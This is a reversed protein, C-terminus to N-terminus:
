QWRNSNGSTRPYSHGEHPHYHQDNGHHGRPVYQPLSYTPYPQYHAFPTTSHSGNPVQPPNHIYATTNLNNSSGPHLVSRPLPPLEVRGKKWISETPSTPISGADLGADAASRKRGADGAPRTHLVEDDSDLTLDIVDDAQSSPVSPAASGSQPASLSSRAYSPSLERKVQGEDEDDDSDLVYIESQPPKSGSPVANGKPPSLRPPPVPKSISSPLAPKAPHLAKWGPSAFQNDSTHWEGDPEVIVDEVIESCQKLIQDFYGDIILDETNLVKECIPCLWTTTQEMMTFWTTADFCSPHVCNTSRCPTNIRMFSLPCKLSIKEGSAVIDDDDSAQAARSRKVEDSSRYKGKKLRDVLQDVSTADVLMVVLYYKKNTQAPQQSNVYVMEIRNPTNGGRIFKTIDPPPATGPKKKLGKLNATLPMGNVRVECTAPFEVPCLVSNTRFTSPTSTWFTSSTCFLRVQYNPQKLKAMQDASLPFNVAQTRRDQANTSEPCEVVSSVTQEVTFFPSSKFRIDKPGGSPGGNGAWHGPYHPNAASSSAYDSARSSHLSTTHAGIPISIAATRAQQMGTSVSRAPTYVGLQRVQTVITKAKLYKDQMNASKWSDLTLTIRDILDQKKGAKSFRMGCEENLGSIIQKLRDVTNMRINNRITDFDSWVTADAM